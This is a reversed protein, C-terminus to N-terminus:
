QKMKWDKRLPHDGIPWDDPLPYRRGPALGDVKIGLLDDIERESLAASPFMDTVTKVVPNEKPVSTEINLLIGDIGALHYMVGYVNGEDLGTITCLHAFGAENVAYEFVKRFNQYDVNVFIRRTKVITFKGELFPFKSILEKQIEEEKPM